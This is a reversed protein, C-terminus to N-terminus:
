QHVQCPVPKGLNVIPFKFNRFMDVKQIYFESYECYSSWLYRKYLNVSCM